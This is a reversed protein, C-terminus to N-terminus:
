VLMFLLPQQRVAVSDDLDQLMREQMANLVSVPGSSQEPSTDDLPRPSQLKCTNSDSRRGDHRVAGSHAPSSERRAADTILREPSRNRLRSQPVHAQGADEAPAPDESSSSAAAAHMSDRSPLYAAAISSLAASELSSHSKDRAGGASAIPLAVVLAAAEFTVKTPLSQVDRALPVAVHYLGPVHVVLSRREVSVAVQSAESVGHVQFRLQMQEHGEEGCFRVSYRPTECIARDDDNREERGHHGDVGM